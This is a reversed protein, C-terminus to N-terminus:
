RPRVAPQLTEAASDRGCWSSIGALAPATPIAAPTATATATAVPTATVTATPIPTVIKAASALAENAAKSKAALTENLTKLEHIEEELTGIRAPDGQHALRYYKVAVLTVLLTAVFLLGVGAGLRSFWGLPVKFSRAAYNDKFVVVTVQDRDLSPTNEM